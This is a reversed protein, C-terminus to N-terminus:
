VDHSKLPFGLAQYAKYHNRATKKSNDDNYVVEIIRQYADANSPMETDLNILVDASQSQEASGLLVPPREDLETDLLAHPIFSIDDFQWLLDDLHNAEDTNTCRVFVTKEAANAKSIIKCILRQAQALNAQKAVYFDVQPM